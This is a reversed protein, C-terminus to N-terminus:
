ATKGDGQGEKLIEDVPVGLAESVRLLNKPSMVNRGTEHRAIIVRNVGSKLSLTCQTMHRAKRLERLRNQM